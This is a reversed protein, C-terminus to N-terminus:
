GKVVWEFCKFNGNSPFNLLLNPMESWSTLHDKPTTHWLNYPNLISEVQPKAQTQFSIKVELGKNIVVNRGGGCACMWM